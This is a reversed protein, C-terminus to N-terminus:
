LWMHNINNSDWSSDQNYYARPVGQKCYWSEFSASLLVFCTFIIYQLILKITSTCKKCIWKIKKKKRVVNQFSFFYIKIFSFETKFNRIAMYWNTVGSVWSLHVHVLLSYFYITVSIIRTCKVEKITLTILACAQVKYKPIVTTNYLWLLLESLM